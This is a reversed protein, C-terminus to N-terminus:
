AELTRAQGPRFGIELEPFGEWQDDVTVTECISRTVSHVTTWLVGEEDVRGEGTRLDLAHAVPDLAGALPKGADVPVPSKIATPPVPLGVRNRGGLREPRVGAARAPRAASAVLGGTAGVAWVNGASTGSIGILGSGGHVAPSRARQWAAGNWHLILTGRGSSGTVWADSASILTVDELM